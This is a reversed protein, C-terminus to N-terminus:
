EALRVLLLIPEKRILPNEIVYKRRSVFDAHNRGVVESPAGFNHLVEELQAPEQKALGRPFCQPIIRFPM